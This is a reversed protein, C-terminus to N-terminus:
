GASNERKSAFQRTARSKLRLLVLALMVGALGLPPLYRGMRALWLQQVRSTYVERFPRLLEDADHLMGGKIVYRVTLSNGPAGLPDADYVVMDALKGVEVTGLDDRGVAKAADSTAARLAEMPHIGAATLLRIEEHIDLGPRRDDGGTIVIGGREVYSRVFEAMRAYAEPYVPHVPEALVDRRAILERLSPPTDRLFALHRPPHLAVGWYHEFVLMPELWVGLAVMEDALADLKRSDATLWLAKHWDWFAATEIPADVAIDGGDPQADLPIATLHSVGSLGARVAERTFVEMPPGQWTHGFAPLGLRRAVRIEEQWRGDVFPGKIKIADVGVSAFHEVLAPGAAVGYLSDYPSTPRESVVVRPYPRAPASARARERLVADLQLTGADRVTTIGLAFRLAQRRQTGASDIEANLHVHSDILGPTIWLGSLDFEAGDDGAPCGGPGSVCTIRDGEVTVRAGIIPQNGAGDVVTAGAFVVRAQADSPAPALGAVLVVLSWSGWSLAASYQQECNVHLYRKLFGLM